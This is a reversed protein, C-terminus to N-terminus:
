RAPATRSRRRSLLHASAIGLGGVVALTTGAAESHGREALRGAVLLSIGALLMAAVLRSRHVRLGLGLSAVGILGSLSALATEAGEGALFGLGVLPLVTAVMPTAACHIACLASISSGSRDLCLLAARRGPRTPDNMTM